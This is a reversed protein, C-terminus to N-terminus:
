GTWEMMGFQFAWAAQVLMLFVLLAARAGPSWERACWAGLVLFAPAATGVYRGMSEMGFNSTGAVLYRQLFILPGLLLYPRFSAPVRKWGAICILLIALTLPMNWLMPDTFRTLSAPLDRFARGIYKFQDWVRALAFFAFWNTAPTEPIWGQRLNRFYVLPTGYRLGLFVAYAAAGSVSLAAVPVMRVLRAPWRQPQALWWALLVVPALVVATPRTATAIGCVLAAAGFRRADALHLSVIMTLVALSEAYGFSYFCATPWACLLAVCLLAADDELHRRAWLFMAVAALLAAVNAVTVLAAQPSLPPSLADALLPLLPFFAITGMASDGKGGEVYQYGNEVISRYHPADWNMLPTFDHVWERLRPKLTASPDALRDRILGERHAFPPDIVELVRVHMIAGSYAAIWVVLRTAICILLAALIGRWLPARAAAPQALEDFLLTPAPM